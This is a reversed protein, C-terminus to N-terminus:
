EGETSGSVTVIQEQEVHVMNCTESRTGEIAVGLKREAELTVERCNAGAGIVDVIKSNGTKKDVRIIIKAM